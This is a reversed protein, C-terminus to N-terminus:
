LSKQTHYYKKLLDLAESYRQFKWFMMTLQYLTNLTQSDNESFKNKYFEYVDKLAGICLDQENLIFANRSLDELLKLYSADDMNGSQHYQIYKDQLDFFERSAQGVIDISSLVYRKTEEDLSDVSDAYREILEKYRGAEYMGKIDM